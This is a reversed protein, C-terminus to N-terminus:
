ENEEALRFRGLRGDREPRWEGIGVSFGALQFLNLLQARSIIGANYSIPIEASWETFEARYHIDAVGMGVKVMDERMHPEGQIKVYEPEIHFAGRAFVKTIGSGPLQTIATVAASKFAVSPFAYDGDADHHISAEYDAQPNKAERGAKAKKQQKDRIMAMAKESWKNMLLPSIGIVKITMQQINPRPLEIVEFGQTKVAGNGSPKAAIATKM